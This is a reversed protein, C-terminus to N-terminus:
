GATRTRSGAPDEPCRSSQVSRSASLPMLSRWRTFMSSRWRRDRRRSLDRAVEAEVTVVDTRDDRHVVGEVQGVPRHRHELQQDDGARDEREHVGHAPVAAPVRDIQRQPERREDVQEDGLRRQVERLPESQVLLVAEDEGVVDERHLEHPVAQREVDDGDIRGQGRQGVLDNAHEPDEPGSACEDSRDGDREDAVHEVLDEVLDARLQRPPRPVVAFRSTLWGINASTGIFLMSSNADTENPAIVYRTRRSTLGADRPQDSAQRIRTAPTSVGGVMASAPIGDLRTVSTSALPQTRPM